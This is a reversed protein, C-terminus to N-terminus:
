NYMKPYYYRNSYVKDRAFDSWNDIKCVLRVIGSTPINDIPKLRYLNAMQTITPNHGFLYVVHANPDDISQIANTVDEVSGNYISDSLIIKEEPLKFVGAFANATQITRRASSALLLDPSFEELLMKNAMFPADREGRKNLPREKDMLSPDEWCSKSHRILYLIRM